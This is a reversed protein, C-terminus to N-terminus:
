SLPAAGDSSLIGAVPVTGNVKPQLRPPVGQLGVAMVREAILAFASAFFVVGSIKALAETTHAPIATNKMRRLFVAYGSIQKFWFGSTRLAM